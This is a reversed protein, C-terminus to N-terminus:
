LGGLAPRSLLAVMAYLAAGVLLAVSFGWTMSIVVALVSGLASFVGNVAWVLAVRRQHQGVRRMLSPFPVGMPIGLLMTLAVVVASRLALSEPLVREVIPPLAFRYLAALAAIWLAAIMVRRPLQPGAWRQSVASGIGGALLLTGLVIALSLIPYGLLLQFRQILPVEILMFGAGIAM